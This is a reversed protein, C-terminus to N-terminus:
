QTIYFTSAPKTVGDEVYTYDSRTLGKEVMIGGFAGRREYDKVQPRIGSKDSGDTIICKRGDATM